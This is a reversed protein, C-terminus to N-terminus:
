IIYRYKRNGEMDFLFYLYRDGLCRRLFKIRQYYISVGTVLEFEFSHAFVPKASTLPLKGVNIFKKTM